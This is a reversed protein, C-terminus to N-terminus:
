VAAKKATFLYRAMKGRFVEFPELACETQMLLM